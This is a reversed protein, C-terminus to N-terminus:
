IDTMSLLSPMEVPRLSIKNGTNQFVLFMMFSFVNREEPYEILREMTNIIPLVEETKKIVDQM